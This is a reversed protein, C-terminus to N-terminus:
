NGHRDVAGAYRHLVSLGAAGIAADIQGVRWARGMTDTIVVAVDVGLAAALGARLRTASADPDVPLLAVEDREVNSADVGSAAQVVGLANMTILTRGRRALVQRAEATVLERRAADRALPDAPVACLRGEVKSVAKSTIVVVDGDILWAAASAVAAALDDGPRFEPLGRVPLIRVEGPAAHDRIPTMRGADSVSM